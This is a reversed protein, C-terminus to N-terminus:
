IHILSLVMAQFSANTAPVGLRGRWEPDAYDWISDPLEEESLANTNYAVVRM